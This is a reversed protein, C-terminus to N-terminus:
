SRRRMNETSSPCAQRDDSMTLVRKNWRKDRTEVGGQRRVNSKM